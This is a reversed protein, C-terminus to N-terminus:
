FVTCSGMALPPLLLFCWTTEQQSCCCHGLAGRPIRGHVDAVAQLLVNSGAALRCWRSADHPRRGCAAVIWVATCCVAEQPLVPMLCWAVEQRSCRCYGRLTMCTRSHTAAGAHLVILGGSHGSTAAGKHLVMRGGAALLPLPGFWRATDQRTYPCHDSTSCPKRTFCRRGRTDAVAWAGCPKRGHVTADALLVMHGATLLPLPGFHQTAQWMRCCRRSSDCPM